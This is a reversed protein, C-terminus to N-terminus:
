SENSSLQTAIENDRKRRHLKVFAVVYDFNVIEKRRFAPKQIACLLEKGTEPDKLGVKEGEKLFVGNIRVDSKIKIAQYDVLYGDLVAQEVTYRYIPIGFYAVTHSAPTATLGIKVADFYNLVNRWM